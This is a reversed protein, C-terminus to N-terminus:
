LLFYQYWLKIQMNLQNARNKVLLFKFFILCFWFVAKAQAPVVLITPSPSAHIHTCTCTCNGTHKCPGCDKACQTNIKLSWCLYSLCPTALTHDAPRNRSSFYNKLLCLINWTSIHISFKNQSFTSSWPDLFKQFPWGYFITIIRITIMITLPYVIIVSRNLNRYMVNLGFLAWLKFSFFSSFL